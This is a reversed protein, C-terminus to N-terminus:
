CSQAHSSRIRFLHNMSDSSCDRSRTSFLIIEAVIAASIFSIFTIFISAQLKSFLKKSSLNIIIFHVNFRSFLYLILVINNNNFEYEIQCWKTSSEHSLNSIIQLSFNEIFIFIKKQTNMQKEARRRNFAWQVDNFSSITMM